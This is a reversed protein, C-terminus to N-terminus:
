EQDAAAAAAIAAEKKDRLTAKMVNAMARALPEASNPNQGTLLRNRNQVHDKVPIDQKFIAGQCVLEDEIYWHIDAALDLRDQEIKPLGTMAKGKVLYDGNSLKVGVMGAVGDSNASIYGKAEYCERVLRKIEPNDHVDFFSGHSGVFHILDYDKGCLDKAAQTAKLKAAVDPDDLCKKVVPHDWLEIGWPDVSVEGGKPSCFSIDVGKQKLYKFPYALSPPYFGTTWHTMDESEGTKLGHTAEEKCSREVSHVNSIVMLASLGTTSM